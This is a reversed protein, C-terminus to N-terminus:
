VSGTLRRDPPPAAPRSAAQPRYAMPAAPGPATPPAGWVSSEASSASQPKPHPAQLRPLPPLTMEGQARQLSATRARDRADHTKQWTHTYYWALFGLTMLSIFGLALVNTVRSQMSRM